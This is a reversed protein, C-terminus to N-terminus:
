TGFGPARSFEMLAQATRLDSSLVGGPLTLFVSRASLYVLKRGLPGAGRIAVQRIEIPNNRWWRRFCATPM